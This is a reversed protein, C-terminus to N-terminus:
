VRKLWKERWLCYCTRDCGGHWSGDCVVDELIVTNKPRICLSKRGKGGEIIYKNIKKLVKYKNGCYKLMEPMFSLGDYKSGKLTALIEKESRVEITEGPNLHLISPIISPDISSDTNEKFLKLARRRRVGLRDISVWLYDIKSSYEIEHIQCKKKSM